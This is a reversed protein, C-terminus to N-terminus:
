SKWCKTPLRRMKRSSAGSIVISRTMPPLSAGSSTIPKKLREILHKETPFEDPLEHPIHEM